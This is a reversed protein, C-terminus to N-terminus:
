RIVAIKGYAAGDGNADVAVVLYIGSPVLQNNRDRGNWRVRGGRAAISNILTGDPTLISIDTEDLLGEIFIDPDGVEDIVVPNPYVKLDQKRTAASTADGQFSILGLDTSFFVEGTTENVAVSLVVNSLLPSNEATYNVVDQFGLDAEEVYWAGADTAVWLNNAPDVAVDNIKLGFFLFQSEGAQRTARLPWIPVANQDRAIIGTNVFYALGEDTALWIRGSKDEAIGNVITGPLGQGNSGSESFYQFADDSTEDLSAGTDLVLLGIRRQLNNQPSTIIWKQGFSDVFIEAYTTASGVVSPFSHWSGDLLRAHLPIAGGTNAVWLTGDSESSIGRVIVFDTGPASVAEGLTSNNSGYFTFNEEADISLLGGGQSGLWTNGQSDIHVAQYSKPRGLLQPYFRQTYSTWNNESDLRYFGRDGGPIGGLWLNSDDDFALASFQGDFPGDPFFSEKVVSPSTTSATFASFATLGETNDGVWLNGDPGMVFNQLTVMGNSGVVRAADASQILIFRSSEVGLLVDHQPELVHVSNETIDLLRYTEDGERVFVGNETGAYITNGFGAISLIDLTGSGITEATWVSPDQLNPQDLPASAVAGPTAVWLRRVGDPASTIAIDNVPNGSQGNGFGVYSELVEAREVDFLVVGFGTAVILTDGMVEMNRIDRQTFQTARQIDLFPRIVMTEIDIRDLVGDSYGVWITRNVPNYAIARVNLGYLGETTTFRSIEGTDIGYRFVGGTTAAWIADESATLDVVQRLSTHSQWTGADQAQVDHVFAPQLFPLLLFVVLLGAFSARSFSARSFSARSFSARSRSHTIMPHM